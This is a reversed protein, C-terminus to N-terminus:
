DDEKTIKIEKFVNISKDFSNNISVTITDNKIQNFAFFGSHVSSIENVTNKLKSSRIFVEQRSENNGKQQLFLRGDKFSFNFIPSEPTTINKWEGVFLNAIDDEIEFSEHM